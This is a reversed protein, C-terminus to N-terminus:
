VLVAFTAGWLYSQRDMIILNCNLHGYSMRKSLRELIRLIREPFSQGSDFGSYPRKHKGEFEVFLTVYRWCSSGISIHCSASSNAFLKSSTFDLLVEMNRLFQFLVADNNSKLNMCFGCISCLSVTLWFFVYLEAQKKKAKSKTTPYM